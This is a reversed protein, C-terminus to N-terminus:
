RLTAGRPTVTPSRRHPCRDPRPTAGAEVWTWGSGGCKECHWQTRAFVRPPPEVDFHGEARTMRGAGEHRPVEFRDAAGEGNPCDPWPCPLQRHDHHHAACTKTIM